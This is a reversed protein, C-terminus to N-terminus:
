VSSALSPRCVAIIIGMEYASMIRKGSLKKDCSTTESHYSLSLNHLQSIKGTNFSIYDSLAPILHFRQVSLSDM